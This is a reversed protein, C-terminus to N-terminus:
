QAGPALLDIRTHRHICAKGILGIDTELESRHAGETRLQDDSQAAHGRLRRQRAEHGANDISPRQAFADDVMVSLARYKFEIRSIRGGGPHAIKENEIQSIAQAPQMEHDLALVAEILQDPLFPKRTEIRQHHIAELTFEIIPEVLEPLPFPHLKIARLDTRQNSVDERGLGRCLLCLLDLELSVGEHLAMGVLEIDQNIPDSPFDLEVRM